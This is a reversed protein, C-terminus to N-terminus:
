FDLRYLITTSLVNNFQNSKWYYVPDGPQDRIPLVSYAGRLDIFIRDNMQFRFGLMGQIDFNNFPHQDQVQFKGDIDFETGKVLYGTSVGALISIKDTTRIGLYVPMDVYNLRMIYVTQDGTKADPNKRSGKQSFKLEMGAFINRTFNNLVYGGAVIGPKNYGFYTDGDVQTANMGALLGGEFRQSFGSTVVFVILCFLFVFRKM